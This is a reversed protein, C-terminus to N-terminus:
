TYRGKVNPCNAKEKMNETNQTTKKENEKGPSKTKGQAYNKKQGVMTRTDGGNKKLSFPQDEENNRKKRDNGQKYGISLSNERPRGASADV